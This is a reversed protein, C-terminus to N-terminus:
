EFFCGDYMNYFDNIEERTWNGDQLIDRFADRAYLSAVMYESSIIGPKTDLVQKNQAIYM